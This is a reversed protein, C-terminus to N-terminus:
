CKGSHGFCLSQMVPAGVSPGVSKSPKAANVSSSNFSIVSVVAFISALAIKKIMAHDKTPSNLYRIVSLRETSAASFDSTSPPHPLPM